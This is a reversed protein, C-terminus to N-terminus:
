AKRCIGALRAHSVTIYPKGDKLCTQGLALMADSAEKTEATSLSTKWKFAVALSPNANARLITHSKRM